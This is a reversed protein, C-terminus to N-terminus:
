YVVTYHLCSKHARPFWFIWSFWKKTTNAKDHSEWELIRAQLLGHVSSDPPSCDMPSCFDSMVSRRVSAKDYHDQVSFFAQVYMVWNIGWPLGWTPINALGMKCIHVSAKLLEGALEPWVHLTNMEQQQQSMSSYVLKTVYHLHIM